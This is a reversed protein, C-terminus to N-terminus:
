ESLSKLTRAVMSEFEGPEFSRIFSRAALQRSFFIAAARKKARNGKGKACQSRLHIAVLERVAERPSFGFEKWWGVTNQLNM